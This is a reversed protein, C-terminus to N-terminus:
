DVVGAIRMMDTSRLPVQGPLLKGAAGWHQWWFRAFDLLTQPRGTAVHRIVPEGPLVERNLEQLFQRAVETVEIFDRVQKGSSMPFDRGEQAARRLSPWFRKEPEGEGFVQFIRLLSLRMGERRAWGGFAVSAAAKSAPYTDTPELPADTPIWEYREASRGYEFCTGAVIFRCIGVQRAHEFLRLPELVNWRLCNELTDYPPNPTHAALHVLVECDQLWSPNVESLPSEIWTPEMALPVRPRSGSRRLAVVQHGAALAARLFHSGVFGTGGTVFLKM